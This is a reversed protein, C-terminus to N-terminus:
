FYTSFQFLKPSLSNLFLGIILDGKRFRLDGDICDNYFDNNAAFLTWNENDLPEIVVERCNIVPIKGYNGNCYGYFWYKDLQSEIQILDNVCVSLEGDFQSKFENVVRVVKPHNLNDNM